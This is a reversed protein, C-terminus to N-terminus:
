WWPEFGVPEVTGSACSLILEFLATNGSGKASRNTYAFDTAVIEDNADYSTDVVKTFETVYSLGM